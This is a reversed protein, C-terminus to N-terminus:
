RVVELLAVVALGLFLATAVRRVPTSPLRRTAAASLIVVPVDALMIDSAYITGDALKGMRANLVVAEKPDDLYTFVAIALPRNSVLDFEVGLNDGQKVYAPFNLRVRKGPQLMEVTVKGADKVAQIRAPGPPVYSKVLVVASKMYNSLEEKKNEVIRGRLGRKQEPPPSASVAVKQLV